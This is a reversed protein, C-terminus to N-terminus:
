SLKVYMAFVDNDDCVLIADLGDEDITIDKNTKLKVSLGSSMQFQNSTFDISSFVPSTVSIMDGDSFTGQSIIHCKSTHPINFNVPYYQLLM